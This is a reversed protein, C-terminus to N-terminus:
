LRNALLDGLLVGGVTGFAARRGEGLAYGVVLMVTPGPIILIAFSAAAFGLWTEFPM